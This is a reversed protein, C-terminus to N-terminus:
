FLIIFLVCYFIVIISIIKFTDYLIIKDRNNSYYYITNKIIIMCASLVYFLTMFLYDNEFKLLGAIFAFLYIIYKGNKKSESEEHLSIYGKHKVISIMTVTTLICFLLIMINDM